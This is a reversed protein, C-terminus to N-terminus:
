VEAPFVTAASYAMANDLFFPVLHVNLAQGMIHVTTKM